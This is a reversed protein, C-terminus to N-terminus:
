NWIGPTALEVAHGDPDRFYLSIAGSSWHVRSEIPVGLSSLKEEWAAVEAAGMGFCIHHPGSGDHPPITGGETHTPTTSSGRVFLLLVQSDNLKLAAFHMQRRVLQAGLLATYFDIARALDEVYLVSETVGSAHLAASM